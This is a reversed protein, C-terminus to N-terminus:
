QKGLLSKFSKLQSTVDPKKAGEYDPPINTDDNWQAVFARSASRMAAFEMPDLDHGSLRAWAQIETATMVSPGSFGSQCWGCDFLYEVLYRATVPPLDLDEGAEQSIEARSKDGRKDKEGPM